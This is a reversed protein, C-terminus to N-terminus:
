SGDSASSLEWILLEPDGRDIEEFIAPLIPSPTRSTGQSPTSTRPGPASNYPGLSIAALGLKGASLSFFAPFAGRGRRRESRSATQCSQADLYHAVCVPLQFPYM